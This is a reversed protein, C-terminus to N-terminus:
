VTSLHEQSLCNPNFYGPSRLFMTPFAKLTSKPESSVRFISFSVCIVSPFSATKAYINIWNSIRTM